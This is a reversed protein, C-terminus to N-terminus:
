NCFTGWILFCKEFAVIVCKGGILYFHGWKKELNDNLFFKGGNLNNLIASINASFFFYLGNSYIKQQVNENAIYVNLQM